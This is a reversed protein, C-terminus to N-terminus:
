KWFKLVPHHTIVIKDAEDAQYYHEVMGATRWRFWTHALYEANRKLNPDSSLADVIETDLRRRISHWGQHRVLKVGAVKCMRIFMIHLQMPSFELSFNYKKLYPVIEKPLLQNRKEGHKQTDLWIMGAEYDIHEPRVKGLESKRLGYVSALALFPVAALNTDKDMTQFLKGFKGAKAADILKKLDKLPIAPADRDESQCEPLWRKGFDRSPGPASMAQFIKAVAAPDNPNASQILMTREKEHVSKAADFVRSVISLAERITLAKYRPKGKGDVESELIARYQGVLTKNWESLSKGDVFALWKNAWLLRVRRCEPSSNELESLFYSRISRSDVM